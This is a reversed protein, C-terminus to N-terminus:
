GGNQAYCSLQSNPPECDHEDALYRASGGYGAGLDLVRLESFNKDSSQQAKHLLETVVAPSKCRLRDYFIQEYLGPRNYIEAYDHFRLRRAEGNEILSFFVEDQDLKTSSSRPFRIRYRKKM